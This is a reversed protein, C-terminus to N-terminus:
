RDFEPQHADIAGSQFAMLGAMTETEIRLWSQQVLWIVASMASSRRPLTQGKEHAM